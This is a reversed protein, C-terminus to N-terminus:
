PFTPSVGNLNERVKQQLTRIIGTVPIITQVSIPQKTAKVEATRSRRSRNSVRSMTQPNTPANPDANTRPTWQCRAETGSITIYAVISRHCVGRDEEVLVVLPRQHHGVVRLGDFPKDYEYM